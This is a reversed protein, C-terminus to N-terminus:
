VVRRRLIREVIQGALTQSDRELTQRAEALEVALGQGAQKVLDDANRKAEELAAAQERRLRQRFDEQERYIETRAVRIAQEYEAAKESAKALSEEALKRAGETADYRAKLVRELPRFFVRKLYFHLLVVLLLTPVARLLLEGLDHLTKEM